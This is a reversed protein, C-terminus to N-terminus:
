VSDAGPGQLPQGRGTCAAGHGLPFRWLESCQTSGVGRAPLPPPSPSTGAAVGRGSGVARWLPEARPSAGAQSHGPGKSTAESSYFWLEKGRTIGYRFHVGAKHQVRRLGVITTPYTLHPDRKGTSLLGLTLITVQWHFSLWFQHRKPTNSELTLGKHASYLAQVPHKDIRMSGAAWLPALMFTLVCPAGLELSPCVHIDVRMCREAWLPPCLVKTKKNCCCGSM